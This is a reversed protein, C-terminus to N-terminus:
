IPRKVRLPSIKKSSTRPMFIIQETANQRAIARSQSEDLMRRTAQQKQFSRAKLRREIMIMGIPKEQYIPYM